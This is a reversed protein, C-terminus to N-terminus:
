TDALRRHFRFTSTWQVGRVVGAPYGAHEALLGTLSSLVWDARDQAPGAETPPAPAMLRWLDAGPLPFAALMDQGRLWVAVTNRPLPLEAKTDVAASFQSGPPMQIRVGQM